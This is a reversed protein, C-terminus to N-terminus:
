NGEKMIKIIEQNGFEIALALMSKGDENVQDTKCGAKLLFRIMDLNKAFIAERLANNGSIDLANADAGQDILIKAIELYNNYAAQFLPTKNFNLSRSNVNSGVTLLYRVTEIANYRVAYTLLHDQNFPSDNIENPNLGQSILTKVQATDKINISSFKSKFTVKEKDKCSSEIFLRKRENYWAELTQINKYEKDSINWDGTDIYPRSTLVLKWEGNEQDVLVYEILDAGVNSRPDKYIIAVASFKGIIKVGDIRPTVSHKKAFEIGITRNVPFKEFKKHDYSSLFSNAKEVDGKRAYEYYQVVAKQPSGDTILISNRGCSTMILVLLLFM